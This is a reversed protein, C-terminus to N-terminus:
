ILEVNANIFNTQHVYIRWKQDIVPHNAHTTYIINLAIQNQENCIKLSRSKNLIIVELTEFTFYSSANSIKKRFCLNFISDSLDNRNSEKNIQALNFFM